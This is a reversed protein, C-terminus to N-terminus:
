KLDPDVLVMTQLEILVKWSCLSEVWHREIYRIKSYRSTGAKDLIEQYRKVDDEKSLDFIFVECTFGDRPRKYAPDDSSYLKTKDGIYEPQPEQAALMESLNSGATTSKILGEFDPLDINDVPASSNNFNIITDTTTESM